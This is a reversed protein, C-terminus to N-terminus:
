IFKIERGGAIWMPLLCTARNSFFLRGMCFRHDVYRPCCVSQIWSKNTIPMIKSMVLLKTRSKNSWFDLTTCLLIITLLYGFTKMEICPVLQQSSPTKSPSTPHAPGQPKASIEETLHQYVTWRETCIKEHRTIMQMGNDMTELLMFSDRILGKGAQGVFFITLFWAIM